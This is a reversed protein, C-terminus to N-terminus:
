VLPFKREKSMSVVKPFVHDVCFFYVSESIYIKSRINSLVVNYVKKGVLKSDVLNYVKNSLPFTSTVKILIPCKLMITLARKISCRTSANWFM